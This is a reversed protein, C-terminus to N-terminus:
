ALVNIIPVRFSLYPGLFDFLYRYPGPDRFLSGKSLLPFHFLLHHLKLRLNLAHFVVLPHQHHILQVYQFLHQHALASVKTAM